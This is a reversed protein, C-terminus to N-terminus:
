VSAAPTLSELHNTYAVLASQNHRRVLAVLQEVDRKRFADIMLRHEEQATVVRPMLV